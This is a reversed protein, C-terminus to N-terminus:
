RARALMWVLREPGRILYVLRREGPGEFVYRVHVELDGVRREDSSARSLGAVAYETEVTRLLASELAVLVGTVTYVEWDTWAAADPVRALLAPVGAGEARMTGRPLSTVPHLQSAIATVLTVEGLTQAPATGAAVAAVLLAGAVAARWSSPRRVRVNKAKM